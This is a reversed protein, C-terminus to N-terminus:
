PQGSIFVTAMRVMTPNFWSPFLGVLLLGLGGLILLFRESWQESIRWPEEEKNTIL